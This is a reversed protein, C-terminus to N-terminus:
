AIADAESKGVLNPVQVTAPGTSIYVTVRSGVPVKTGVPPDTRTVNGKDITDSAESTPEFKFDSGFAAQADARVVMRAARGVAVAARHGAVGNLEARRPVTLVDNDSGGIRVANGHCARDGRRHLGEELRLEITPEPVNGFVPAPTAPSVRLEHGEFAFAPTLPM